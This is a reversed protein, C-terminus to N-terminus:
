IHRGEDKMGDEYTNIPPSAALNVRHVWCTYGPTPSRGSLRSRTLQKDTVHDLLLVNVHSMPSPCLLAGRAESDTM